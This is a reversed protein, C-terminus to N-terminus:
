ELYNRLDLPDLLEPYYESAYAAVIQLINEEAEEFSMATLEKPIALGHAWTDTWADEANKAKEYMRETLEPFSGGFCIGELLCTKMGYEAIESPVKMNFDIKKDEHTYSERGKTPILGVGKLGGSLIFEDFTDPEGGVENRFKALRARAREQLWNMNEEETGPVVLIKALTNLNNRRARGLIAGTLYLHSCVKFVDSLHLYRGGFLRTKTVKNIVPISLFNVLSIQGQKYPM